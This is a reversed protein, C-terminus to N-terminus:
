LFKRLFRFVVCKTFSPPPVFTFLVPAIPDFDNGLFNIADLGSIFILQIIPLISNYNISRKTNTYNITDDYNLRLTSQSYIFQFCFSNYSKYDCSESVKSM